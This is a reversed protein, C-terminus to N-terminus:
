VTVKNDAISHKPIDMTIIPIVGKYSQEQLTNGNNPLIHCQGLDQHQVQGQSQETQSKTVVDSKIIPSLRGQLKFLHATIPDDDDKTNELSITQVRHRSQLQTPSNIEFNTSNTVPLALPLRPIALPQRTSQQNIILSTTPVSITTQQDLINSEQSINFSSASKSYNEDPYSKSLDIFDYYSSKTTDATKELSINGQKTWGSFSQKLFTFIIIFYVFM